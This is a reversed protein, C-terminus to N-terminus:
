GGWWFMPLGIGFVSIIVGLSAFALIPWIHALLRELSLHLAAQFLLPPLVLFFIMEKSFGTENIDPGLGTIAIGLGFLTLAITYPLHTVYKVAIGVLCAMLLLGIYIGEIHVLANGQSVALQEM